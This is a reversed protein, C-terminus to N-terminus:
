SSTAIPEVEVAWEDAGASGSPWRNQCWAPISDNANQELRGRERKRGGERERKRQRYLKLTGWNLEPLEPLYNFVLTQNLKFDIQSPAKWENYEKAKTSHRFDRLSQCPSSCRWNLTFNLLGSNSQCALLVHHSLSPSNDLPHAPPSREEGRVERGRGDWGRREEGRVERGRGDWGRREEGGRGEGRREGKREEGPSDERRQARQWWWTSSHFLSLPTSLLCGLVYSSMKALERCVCIALAHTSAHKGKHPVIQKRSCAPVHARTFVQIIGIYICYSNM